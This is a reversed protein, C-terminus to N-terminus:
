LDAHGGADAPGRPSAPAVVGLGNAAGVSVEVTIGLGQSPTRAAILSVADPLEELGNSQDDREVGNIM